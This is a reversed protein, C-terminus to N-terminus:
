CGPANAYAVLPLGRNRRDFVFCAFADNEVVVTDGQRQEPLGVGVELGDLALDPDGDAYAAVLQCEDTGGVPHREASRQHLLQIL